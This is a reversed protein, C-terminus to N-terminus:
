ELNSPAHRRQLACNFSSHDFMGSIGMTYIYCQYGLLCEDYPVENLKM